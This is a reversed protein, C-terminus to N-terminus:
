SKKFGEQIPSFNFDGSVTNERAINTQTQNIIKQGCPQNQLKNLLDQALQVIEADDNAKTIEIEEQLTAQRGKSNPNKELEEVANIVASESSFKKKLASKLANYSDYIADKSLAALAAIIATTIIDM